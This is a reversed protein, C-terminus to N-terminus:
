FLGREILPDANWLGLRGKVKIQKVPQHRTFVWAFRGASYDGFFYEDESLSSRIEETPVCDVVEVYALAVGLPLVGLPLRRVFRPSAALSRHEQRWAASSCVILGGRYHTRYSRTEVMKAGVGVLSAWPQLLSLAKM